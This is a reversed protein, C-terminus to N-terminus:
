CKPFFYKRSPLLCLISLAMVMHWISHVIHYNQKTQLFAFCILGGMVLVMGLPLYIILYKPSPYWKRIKYCRIGWSTSILCTGILAPALFVWLSQKNLETGFAILVAGFMHLISVFQPRIHSMAILTVWIALLGCYFDCFQLVGIKVLCFSYEDEGSDCAHYFTSFFMAFFYIVAETYYYRRIAIYISPLFILNSLTLLLTAVLISTSSQVQIDETCDWGRYGRTCVCTSFVFGGSMYHYCRGYRGCRGTICPNSSIAFVVSTSCNELASDQQTELKQHVEFNLIMDLYNPTCKPDVLCDNVASTEIETMSNLCNIDTICSIYRKSAAFCPCSQNIKDFTHINNKIFEKVSDIVSFQAAPQNGHCYLSMSIYWRGSEPFPVHVLGMTTSIDTDNVIVTAPLVRQGYRCKNPWIPIGPESLHMCVLITKNGRFLSDEEANKDDDYKNGANVSFLEHFTNSESESEKNISIAFTLTGGIDHVEGVDFAFGAPVSSTLNLVLPVTGNEDPMLDYDFMFFERYTQRLLPYFDIGRFRKPRWEKPGRNLLDMTINEDTEASEITTAFTPNTNTEGSEKKLTEPFTQFHIELSYKMQVCYSKGEENHEKQFKVDNMNNTKTYQESESQTSNIKLTNLVEKYQSDFSNTLKTKWRGSQMKKVRFFEVHVYHWAEEQVYFEFSINGTQNSKIIHLSHISNQEDSSYHGNVPKPFAKSQIRFVMDPCDKCAKDISILAIAAGINSPVYFKYIFENRKEMNSQDNDINRGYDLNVNNGSFDDCTSLVGSQSLGACLISPQCRLVSMEAFLLTDCSSTLGQQEIRDNKPDTWSIFAIAFWDGLLPGEILIHQQEENSQLKLSYIKSRQDDSLYNKPFTINEPSIVPFSGSKLHLDVSRPKCERHFTSKGEEYAKFGFFATRTDDPVKFHLISIDKYDTYKLLTNLPLRVILTQNKPTMLQDVKELDIENFLNDVEASHQHMQVRADCNEHSIICVLVACFKILYRRQFNMNEFNKAPVLRCKNVKPDKYLKIHVSTTIHVNSYIRINMHVYM